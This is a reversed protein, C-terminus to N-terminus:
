HIGLGDRYWVTLPTPCGRVECALRATRGVKVLLEPRVAKM